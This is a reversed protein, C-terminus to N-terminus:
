KEKCSEERQTKPDRNTVTLKPDQQTSDPDFRPLRDDRPAVADTAQTTQGTALSITLRGAANRKM